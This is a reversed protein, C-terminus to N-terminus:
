GAEKRDKTGEILEARVRSRERDIQEPTAGARRLIEISFALAIEGEATFVTDAGAAFLDPQERLYTARALVQVAPNLDRAMRIVEALNEIGPTSFVVTRVTAVGAADLTERKMADGYVAKLGDRHVSRVTEINLDVITPNIGNERLLRAVTRGTPGYGIV